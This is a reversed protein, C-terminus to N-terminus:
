VRVPWDFFQGEYRASQFQWWNIKMLGVASLFLQFRDMAGYVVTDQGNLLYARTRAALIVLPGAICIPCSLM